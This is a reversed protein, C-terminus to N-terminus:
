EEFHVARVRGNFTDAIYLIGAADVFLGIPENLNMHTAPGEEGNFLGQGMSSPHRIGAVTTIMGDATVRRVVSVHHEVFFLDGDPGVGIGWPDTLGVSTAPVGEAGFSSGGGAVTAITGDPAVGRVIDNAYESVYLNGDRDIAVDVVNDNKNPDDPRSETGAVTTIIGSPQIKRVKDGDAVYLNGVGDFALGAGFEGFGFLQAATAPGGDGSYGREGTGAITSIIGNADVKRIRYNGWDAIYLNGAPDVAVSLPTNLRASTAPGGDGAFGPLGSGAVTTIIGNPDIKRISHGGPGDCFIGGDSIYLNGAADVVVDNPGCLGASTAPGGDGLETGGGAVTVLLNPDPSPTPSVPAATPTAAPSPTPTSAVGSCAAVVLTVVVPFPTRSWRRTM